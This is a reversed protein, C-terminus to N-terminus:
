FTLNYNEFVNIKSHSVSNVFFLIFYSLHSITSNYFNALLKYITKKKLKIRAMRKSM